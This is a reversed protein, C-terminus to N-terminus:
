QGFSLLWSLEEKRINLTKITDYWDTLMSKLLSSDAGKYYNIKVERSGFVPPLVKFLDGTYYDTNCPFFENKLTKSNDSFSRYGCDYSLQLTLM